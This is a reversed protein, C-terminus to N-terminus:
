ASTVFDLKPLASMQITMESVRHQVDSVDRTKPDILLDKVFIRDGIKLMLLDGCGIRPPSDFESLYPM